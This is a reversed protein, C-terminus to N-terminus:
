FSVSEGCGCSERVNPNHFEFGENLMNSKVFDLTMGDLMSLSNSDVVVKVGGSDFVTDNDNVEDAYDVVYAYGSCGSKRIGLRLGIGHGRKELMSNVRQAASDTLHITM